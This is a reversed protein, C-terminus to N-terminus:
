QVTQFPGRKANIKKCVPLNGIRLCAMRFKKNMENPKIIIFKSNEFYNFLMRLVDDATNEQEKAVPYVILVKKTALLTQKYISSEISRNKRYVKNLRWEVFFTKLSKM